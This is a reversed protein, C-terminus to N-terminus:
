EKGRVKRGPAQPMDIFKVKLEHEGPKFVAIASDFPAWSDAGVFKIRGKLFLVEAAKPSVYRQWVTNGTRSPLLCVVTCGQQSEEYAKRVWKEQTGRSYPPNMFCRRPSPLHWEAKLGDTSIGGAGFYTPCKRNSDDACVDVDFPGYETNLWAYLHDPTAWDDKGTSFHVSRTVAIEPVQYQEGAGCGFFRATNELPLDFTEQQLDFAEKDFIDNSSKM